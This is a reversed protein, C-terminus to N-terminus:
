DKIFKEIEKTIQNKNLSADIILTNLNLLECAERMADQVGLLYEVGRKEISDFGGRGNLRSLILEKTAYFLVVKDPLLGNLAFKNLFVLENIDFDGNKLAYAIGSILGRDSIVFSNKSLIKDMTEARDALFLLIEARKSLSFKGGLLIERLIEGFATGGPEKTIFADKFIQSVCEIQTSKGVGDIGEFLIYM